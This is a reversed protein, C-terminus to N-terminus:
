KELGGFLKIFQEREASNLAGRRSALDVTACGLMRYLPILQPIKKGMSDLHTQVTAADGRVIPGTLAQTTGALVMNKLTGDILPYLASMADTRNVGSAEMLTLAADTITTFYNCAMCAAAHYLPKDATPIELIACKLDAALERASELAAPHGEITIFSGPLNRIGAEPDAFTQLPHFSLTYAGCKEADTLIESSHAGSAHAVISNPSFGGKAAIERCVGAIVRDPTTLFVFDAQSTFPIPDTGFPARVASAAHSASAETRSAIGAIEHGASNFLFALASGVKGAGVIAIRM